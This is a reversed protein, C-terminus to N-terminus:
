SHPAVNAVGNPGVSSVWAIPRPVVISTLLGYLARPAVTAPDLERVASAALRSDRGLPREDQTATPARPHM